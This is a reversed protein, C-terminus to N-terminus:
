KRSPFWDLCDIIPSFDSVSATWGRCMKSGSFRHQFFDLCSHNSNAIEPLIRGEFSNDSLQLVALNLASWLHRPVEGSLRNEYVGLAVLTTCSALSVPLTGSLNNSLVYFSVFMGGRCLHQPIPAWLNNLSADVGVLTSNM